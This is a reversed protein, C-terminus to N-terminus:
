ISRRKLWALKFRFRYCSISIIVKNKNQLRLQPYKKYEPCKRTLLASRLIYICGATLTSLKCWGLGPILGAWAGPMSSGLSLLAPSQARHNAEIGSFFSIKQPFLSPLLTQTCCLPTETMGLVLPAEWLSHLSFSFGCPFVQLSVPPCDRSKELSVFRM